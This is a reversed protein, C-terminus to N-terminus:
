FPLYSLLGNRNPPPVLPVSQLSREMFANVYVSLTHGTQSVLCPATNVELVYFGSLQSYIIDVAGFDFGLCEVAEVALKRLTPKLEFKTNLFKAGNAHNGVPIKESIKIVKGDVVHIRFEREVDIYEMFHTAKRADTFQQESNIIFTNSGHMHNDLRGILKIGSYSNKFPPVPLGSQRMKILALRKNNSRGWIITPGNYGRDALTENLLRGSVSTKKNWKVLNM